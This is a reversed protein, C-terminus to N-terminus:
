GSAGIGTLEVACAAISATPATAWCGARCGSGVPAVGRNPRGRLSLTEVHWVDDGEEARPLARLSLPDMHWVDDGGEARPVFRLPLPDVDTDGGDARLATELCSKLRSSPRRLERRGERSVRSAGSGVRMGGGMIPMAEGGLVGGKRVGRSDEREFQEDMAAPVCVM